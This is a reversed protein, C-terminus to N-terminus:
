SASFLRLFSFNDIQNMTINAGNMAIMNQGISYCSDMFNELLRIKYYKYIHGDSM